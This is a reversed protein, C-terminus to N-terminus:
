SRVKSINSATNPSGAGEEPYPTLYPAFIAGLIFLLIIFLSIVALSDRRFARVMLRYEELQSERQRLWDGLWREAIAM